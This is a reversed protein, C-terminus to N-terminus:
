GGDLSLAISVLRFVSLSIALSPSRQGIYPCDLCGGDVGELDCVGAWWGPHLFALTDNGILVGNTYAVGCLM